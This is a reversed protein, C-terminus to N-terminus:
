QQMFVVVKGRVSDFHSIYTYGEKELEEKYSSRLAIETEKDRGTFREPKYYKELFEDSGSVDTVVQASGDEISSKLWDPLTLIEM